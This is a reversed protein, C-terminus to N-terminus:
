VRNALRTGTASAQRTYRAPLIGAWPDAILVVTAGRIAFVGETIGVSHRRFGAASRCVLDAW